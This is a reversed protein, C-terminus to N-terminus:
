KMKADNTAHKMAMVIVATRYGAKNVLAGIRALICFLGDRDDSALSETNM